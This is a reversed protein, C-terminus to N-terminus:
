RLTLQLFRILRSRRGAIGHLAKSYISHCNLHQPLQLMQDTLAGVVSNARRNQIKCLVTFRSQREVVTAIATNNSGVILDGEWHGPIARDEVEVPRERISIADAIQGRTSVRHTRTHWFM